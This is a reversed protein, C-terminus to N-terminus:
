QVTYGPFQGESARNGYYLDEYVDTINGWLSAGVVGSPGSLGFRTQFARVANETAPGFVGDVTLSPIEPYTRGIYNLYEQLLVVDEGRSGELLTTGPFPVIRGERYELPVSSVLSLYINYVADWTDENVIGTVPLGYETQFARVAEETAPGFISDPTVSPIAPNFQSIYSLYYQLVRVGIQRTGLSLEEPFQTAREALTLGESDLAALRKVATYIRQIRYWTGPGVIGDDTLSFTRQFERVANETSEGFVGDVPYIKPIAPYNASIRNLQVQIRQVLPGISGFRLPTNPVSEDINGVPVDTVIDINNGYYNTLIGYPTNGQEALRVSGWQSLGECTVEIGDCYAAFLPEINGQRRLYSNFIDDVIESINEFIDRGYVFSQDIATSNTIDFPYGQSRYFETYVRNLAYSIQAYINARIAEEPWTPYIESSAVNKIYDAFPVTVNAADSSPPGLHVVINEPIIPLISLM